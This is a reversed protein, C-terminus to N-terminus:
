KFEFRSCGDPVTVYPQGRYTYPRGTNNDIVEVKINRGYGCGSKTGSSTNCRGNGAGSNQLTQGNVRITTNCHFELVVAIPGKTDSLPKWLFDRMEELPEAKPDTENLANLCSGILNGNCADNQDVGALGARILSESVSRGDNTILQGITGQGGGALSINCDNTAKFFTPSNNTLSRIMQMAANSNVSDSSVGQLKLLQAGSGGVEEISVLNNSIVDKVVVSKGDQFKVPNIAKGNTVVGCDTTAEGTKTNNVPSPSTNDGEEAPKVCASLSAFLISIFLVKKYFM